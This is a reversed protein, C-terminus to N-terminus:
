PGGGRSTSGRTSGRRRRRGDDLDVLVDASFSTIRRWRTMASSSGISSCMLCRASPDRSSPRPSGCPRARAAPAIPLAAAVGRHGGAVPARRRSRVSPRRRRSALARLLARLRAGAPAALGLRRAWSAGLGCAGGLASVPSASAALVLVGCGSRAGLAPPLSASSDLSAPLFCVSPWLARRVVLLLLASFFSRLFVPSRPLLHRKVRARTVSM